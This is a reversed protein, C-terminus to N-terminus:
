EKQPSKRLLAQEALWAVGFVGSFVLVLEWFQVVAIQSNTFKAKDGSSDKVDRHIRQARAQLDHYHMREWEEFNSRGRVRGKYYSSEPRRYSNPRATQYEGSSSFATNHYRHPGAGSHHHNTRIRMTRDYALRKAETGLVSYAESIKLFKHHAEESGSNRDPHWQM